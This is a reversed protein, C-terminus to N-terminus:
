FEVSATLQQLTRFDMMVHVKEFEPDEMPNYDAHTQHGEENVYPIVSPVTEVDAISIIQLCTSGPLSRAIFGVHCDQFAIIRDGVAIGADLSAFGVTGNTGVFQVLEGIQMAPLKNRQAAIDCARTFSRKPNETGEKIVWGRTQDVFSLGNYSTTVRELRRSEIVDATYRQVFTRFGDNDAESKYLSM